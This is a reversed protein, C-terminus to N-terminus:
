WRGSAGGGGSSGGGFGSFGGSSRGSSFGGWSSKWSTLLGRRKREKYNRSLIFDLLLGLFGLSLAAFILAPFSGIIAGAVAGLIVGMVGGAFFEKTRAL